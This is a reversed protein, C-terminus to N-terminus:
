LAHITDECASNCSPCSVSQVVQQRWLNYLTPIAENTAKWMLYKIKHLVQLSWIGKWMQSRRESDSCNPLSLRKALTLLKYASRTTFVGQNSPFWVQKDPTNHISLPIGFIIEAEHALFESKILDLNWTYSEEDILASVNSDSSLSSLLSVICSSHLSPLWKDGRVKISKSDGVCWVLGLDIVQRAQAIGKWAYSRKSSSNAEMISCNPFKKAKFVRHFLSDENNKLHWVQKALLSDNFRSLERFGM